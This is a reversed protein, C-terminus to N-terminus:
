KVYHDFQAAHWTLGALATLTPALWPGSPKATKYMFAELGFHVLGIVNTLLSMTYWSREHLHYAAILRVIGVAM